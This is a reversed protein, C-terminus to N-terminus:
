KKDYTIKLTPVGQILQRWDEAYKKSLAKLEDPRYFGLVRQYTRFAVGYVLSLLISVGELNRIPKLTAQKQGLRVHDKYAAAHVIRSGASYLLEYEPLRKLTGAIERLNQLGLLQYWNPDHKRKSQKRWQIFAAEIPAFEKQALIQDTEDKLASAAKELEPHVENLDYGLTDQIVKFRLQEDTGKIARQAWMREHRVNAVYYHAAKNATDSVLMWELYLSAEFAARAPLHAGQATGESLLAEVADTMGVVQKLLVSCVVLDALQEKGSAYARPILNSGYNVIDRLAELHKGFIRQADARATDRDLLRHPKEQM